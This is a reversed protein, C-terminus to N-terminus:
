SSSKANAIKDKYAGSEYLSSDPPVIGKLIMAHSLNDYAYCDMWCGKSCNEIQTTLGTDITGITDTITLCPKIEGNPMVYAFRKSATCEMDTTGDIFGTLYDYQIPDDKFVEDRLRKVDELATGELRYEYKGYLQNSEVSRFYLSFGLTKAFEYTEWLQDQNEKMATYSIFHKGSRELKSLREMCERVKADATKVGRTVSHTRIGDYSICIDLTPYTEALDVVRDVLFANTIMLTQEAGLSLIKGVIEKRNRHQTVEGGTISVYKLPGVMTKIKDIIAPNMDVRDDKWIDCMICRANCGWTVLIQLASLNKFAQFPDQPHSTNYFTM